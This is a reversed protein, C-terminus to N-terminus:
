AAGGRARRRAEVMPPLPLVAALLERTYPHEPAGFVKEVPGEEVVKADKLVVVRSCFGKVLKLDHTIFVIGLGMKVKLLRLLELIQGQLEMDLASVPEDAVLLRPKTAIARAIAIRQRQGGSFEHAYRGAFSPDLGVQTLLAAAAEERAEGGLHDHIALNETVIEGVKQRPDLSAFPDQFVMQLDRRLHRVESARLARLPKGAFVVEGQEPPDLWILARGLTSKGSGSEGVVAVIEGEAVSLDVGDLARVTESGFWGTRTPVKYEKVLGTARLLEPM